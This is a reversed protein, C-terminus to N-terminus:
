MAVHDLRNPGMQWGFQGGSGVPGYSIELGADPFITQQAFLHRAVLGVAYYNNIPTSLYHSHFSIQRRGHHRRDTGTTIAAPGVAGRRDGHEPQETDDAHNVTEQYVMASPKAIHLM